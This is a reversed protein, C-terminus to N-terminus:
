FELHDPREAGFYGVPEFSDLQYVADGVVQWIPRGELDVIYKGQLRGTLEDELTYLNNYKLYAFTEGKRDVLAHGIAVMCQGFNLKPTLLRARDDAQDITAFEIHWAHDIVQFVMGKPALRKQRQVGAGEYNHYTRRPLPGVKGPKLGEYGVPALAYVITGTCPMM